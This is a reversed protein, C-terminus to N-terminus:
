SIRILGGIKSIRVLKGLAPIGNIGIIFEHYSLIGSWYANSGSKIEALFALGTCVQNLM